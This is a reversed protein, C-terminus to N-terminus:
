APRGPGPRSTRAPQEDRGSRAVLWALGAITFDAVTHVVRILIAAAAAAGIGVLPALLGVLTLERVAAGAPAVVLVVGLVYAAAFAAVATGLVAGGGGAQTVAPPPLVLVLGVGYVLWVVAMLGLLRGSETWPLRLPQRPGALLRAIWRMVEPSVAVVTLVVAVIVIWGPLDAIWGALPGPDAVEGSTPEDLLGLLAAVPLATVVHVWLFVLGVAVTTRAPVHHGRAMDAQAGLSWVSGPIYKGLQGVFFIASAPRVPVRHGMAALIARWVAGTVALGGLVVLLGALVRVPSTGSLAAGIEARYERLGWWGFGVAAVLFLGRLADLWGLRRVGRRGQDGAAAAAPSSGTDPTM